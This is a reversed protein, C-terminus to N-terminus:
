EARLQDLAWNVYFVVQKPGGVLFYDATERGEHFVAFADSYVEIHVIKPLQIVVSKASGVFALRQNTVVV